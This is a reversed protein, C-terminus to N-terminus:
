ILYLSILYVIKYFLSKKCCILSAPPYKWKIDMASISAYLVNCYMFFTCLNYCKIFLIWFIGYRIWLISGKKCPEFQILTIIICPLQLIMIYRSGTNPIGALMFPGFPFSSPTNPTHVYCIWRLTLSM